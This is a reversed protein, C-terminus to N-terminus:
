APAAAFAALAAHFESLAGTHLHARRAAYHFGALLTVRRDTLSQQQCFEDLTIVPEALNPAGPGTPAPPAEATPPAPTIIQLSDPVSELMAAADEALPPNLKM